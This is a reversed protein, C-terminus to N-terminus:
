FEHTNNRTGDREGHGCNIVTARSIFFLLAWLVVVLAFDSAVSALWAGRWGYMPILLINLFLNIIAISVQVLSRLGQYGAGTLADAALYHTSRLFLIPLLYLLIQASLRYELGIIHPIFPTMLALALSVLFAIGLTWPLLRVAFRRACSINQAGEQFFRPYSAYLLARIPAFGADLMRYAAAYAGAVQNGSLLALLTKDLDNYAGQAAIGISFYFGELWEGRLPSLSWPGSGLEKVVLAYALLGTAIGSGAYLLAWLSATKDFPILLFLVAMGLRLVSLIVWILSTRSLRQHAQFAQSAVDALRVGLLDGLAIPLAITYAVTPGFLVVTVFVALMALLTGSLVTVAVAAGWFEKFRSQDRSVHKILINGSGWSAFPGLIAVIALVSAFAGYQEPGLSRAILIFYLLQISLRVGYGGLMWLTNKFLKTQFV